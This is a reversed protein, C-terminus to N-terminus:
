ENISEEEMENKYYKITVILTIPLIFLGAFGFVKVGIFMALLTFLPHIGIQGGIIKPEAFNRVLTIVAYIILISIGLPTKGTFLCIISWPVLVAGTGLVPLIDIFAILLALIFAGKLRLVLLGIFLEVFTLLMLLLYGKVLKLVSSFLINKVKVFKSYIQRGCLYSVFKKLNEFDKAIFCTAVLTVISSFIFSPIKKAFEAAIQSIFDSIKTTVNNLANSLFSSIEESFQPSINKIAHSIKEEIQLTIDTVNGLSINKIMNSASISIRYIIFCLLFAIAIYIAAALVAAIIGKKFRIKISIYNAYKQVFIAVPIAILFPLLYLFLFKLAIYFILLM